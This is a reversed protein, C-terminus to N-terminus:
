LLYRSDVLLYGTDDGASDFGNKRYEVFIKDNAYVQNYTVDTYSSLTTGSNSHRATSVKEAMPSPNSNLESIRVYDYYSESYSRIHFKYDGSTNFTIQMLSSSSNINQNTSELRIYGSVNQNGAESLKWGYNGSKLEINIKPQHIYSATVSAVGESSYSIAKVITNAPVAIGSHSLGYVDMFDSPNYLPSDSSPETGDLTYRIQGMGSISIIRMDLNGKCIGAVSISPAAIPAMGNSLSFESVESPMQGPTISVAKITTPRTASVPIEVGQYTSGDTAPLASPTYVQAQDTPDSGDTTYYVTSYEPSIIEIIRKGTDSSLVGKYRILPANSVMSVIDTLVPESPMYGDKLSITKLLIGTEFLMGKYINGDTGQYTGEIYSNSFSWPLTDSATYAFTCDSEGTIEIIKKSRDNMYHGHDTIVHSPASPIMTDDPHMSSVDSDIYATDTAIAKVEADFPVIIGEKKANMFEYTKKTKSFILSHSNKKDPNTGNLTYYIETSKTTSINVIYGSSNKGVIKMTPPALKEEPVITGLYCSVALLLILCILLASYKGRM